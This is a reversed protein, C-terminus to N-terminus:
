LGAPNSVAQMDYPTAYPASTFPPSNPSVNNCNKFKYNAIGSPGTYCLDVGSGTGANVTIQSAAAGPLMCDSANGGTNPNGLWVTANTGGGILTVGNGDLIKTVAPFGGSMCSSPEFDVAGLTMSGDLLNGKTIGVGGTLATTSSWACWVTAFLLLAAVQARLSVTRSDARARMLEGGGRPLSGRVRDAREGVYLDV